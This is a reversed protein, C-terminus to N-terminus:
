DKKKLIYVVPEFLFTVMFLSYLPSILVVSMHALDFEPISILAILVSIAAALLATKSLLRFLASAQMRLEDSIEKKPFAAARLGTFFLKISRTFILIALLPIFIMIFSPINTYYAINGTTVIAFVNGLLFIAAAALSAVVQKNSRTVNTSEKLHKVMKSDGKLLSDITIDYVDSLIILGAVDPYSKGNEWNSLTQRSVGAKEAVAEQTFNTAARAQKLKEGISM